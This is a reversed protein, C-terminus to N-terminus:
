FNWNLELFPVYIAAEWFDVYFEKFEGIHLLVAEFKLFLILILKKPTELM